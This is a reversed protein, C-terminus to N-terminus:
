KVSALLENIEKLKTKLRPAAVHGPNIRLVAEVNAKADVLYDRRNNESFLGAYAQAMMLHADADNKELDTVKKCHQISARYDDLGM